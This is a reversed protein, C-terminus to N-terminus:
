KPPQSQQSEKYQKIAESLTNNMEYVNSAHNKIFDSYNIHGAKLLELDRLFDLQSPTFRLSVEHDTLKLYIPMAALFMFLIGLLFSIVAYGYQGLLLEQLAIASTGSGVILFFTTIGINQWMTKHAIKKIESLTIKVSM